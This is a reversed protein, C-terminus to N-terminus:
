KRAGVRNTERCELASFTDIMASRVSASWQRHGQKKLVVSVDGDGDGNPIFEYWKNDGEYAMNAGISKEANEYKIRMIAEPDETSVDLVLSEIGLGNPNNGPACRFIISDSATATGVSMLISITAVLAKM